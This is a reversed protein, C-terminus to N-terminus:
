RLREVNRSDILFSREMTSRHYAVLMEWQCERVIERATFYEQFTLHSFSYINRAREVLLGHHHEITKLVVELDLSHADPDSSAKPLNCIYDKIQQQLDEQQFLYEGSVFSRFAIKALMDAKDESSLKKYIQEGRFHRSVDRDVNRKKDWQKLLFSLCEKLLDSRRESLNNKEEFVFCLFTLLLPNKALEKVSKNEKLNKLLRAAKSPSKKQFWKNVFTLIQQKDFDAIEVDTFKEFQYDRAAIRCTIVFRNNLWDRSFKDIDQKVRQDDEKKVEDLGDLLILAKGNELLREVSDRTVKRQQLESFIYEQLSPEGRTEAYVKLTVFIPVLEGHFKGNLCSMALYKMFTTKGAGPKGLVILKQLKNVADFSTVRKQNTGVLFRDFHERTCVDMVEDYGIRRLGTLEKIISVDTYIRALDLPQTMDLVRMTGCCETVDAAIKQKVEQVLLDLNDDPQLDAKVNQKKAETELWNRLKNAKNAGTGTISFKKYIGTKRNRIAEVTVHLQESIERDGKGNGWWLLFVEEQEPSLEYKRALDTLFNRPFM